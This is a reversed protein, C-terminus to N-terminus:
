RSFIKNVYKVVQTDSIKKLSNIKDRESKEKESLEPKKYKEM